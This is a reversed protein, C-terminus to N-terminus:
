ATNRQLWDRIIAHNNDLWRINSEAREIAQQITRTATGLEDLHERAFEVLQFFLILLPCIACNKKKLYAEQPFQNCIEMMQKNFKDSSLM